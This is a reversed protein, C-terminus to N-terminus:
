DTPAVELVTPGTIPEDFSKDIVTGQVKITQALALVSSTLIMTAILLFRKM